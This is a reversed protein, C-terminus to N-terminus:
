LLFSLIGIKGNWLGSQSVVDDVITQMSFGAAHIDRLTISQILPSHMSWNDFWASISSGNGIKCWIFKGIIPHIQLIKHWGWTMNGRFPYDWFNHGRLKHTHIWKVWLSEKRTLISWVHSSILAVNFHDLRRIGLGGEDKPLCIDEWAVKAKGRRMMIPQMPERNPLRLTINESDPLTNCSLPIDLLSVREMSLKLWGLDVLWIRVVPWPYHVHYNSM